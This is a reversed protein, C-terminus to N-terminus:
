CIAGLIGLEVYITDVFFKPMKEVTDTKGGSRRRLIVDRTVIVGKQM